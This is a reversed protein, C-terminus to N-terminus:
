LVFWASCLINLQVFVTIIFFYLNIYSLHLSLLNNAHLSFFPFTFTFDDRLKLQCWAMFTYQPLPPIAGRM